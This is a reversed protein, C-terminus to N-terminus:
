SGLNQDLNDVQRKLTQFATFAKGVVSAVDSGDTPLLAITGERALKEFAAVYQEALQQAVATTGGEQNIAKGITHIAEARAKAEILV